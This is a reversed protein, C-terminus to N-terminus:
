QCQYLVYRKKSHTFCQVWLLSFLGWFSIWLATTNSLPAAIYILAMCCILASSIVAIPLKKLSSLGAYLATIICYIALFFLIFISLNQSLSLINNQIISKSLDIHHINASYASIGLLLSLLLLLNGNTQKNYAYSQGNWFVAGIIFFLSMSQIIQIAPLGASHLHLNYLAYISAILLWTVSRLDLSKLAHEGRKQHKSKNMRATLDYPLASTLHNTRKSIGHANQTAPIHENVEYLSLIRTLTFLGWFISLVGTLVINQPAILLGLVSLTILTMYLLLGPNKSTYYSM